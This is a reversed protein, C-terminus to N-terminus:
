EATIFEIKGSANVKYSTNGEAIIITWGQKNINSLSAGEINIVTSPLVITSYRYKINEDDFTQDNNLNNSQNNDNAVSGHFITEVGEAITLTEGQTATFIPAFYLTKGDMSYVRGDISKYTENTNNCTVKTVSNYVYLMASLNNAWEGNLYYSTNTTQVTKIVFSDSLVIEDLYYPRSMSLEYADRVTNPMVYVLDRKSAPYAILITPVGNEKRYLVGDVTMYYPNSSDIEFATVHETACNYFLHSGIIDQNPNEPDYSQGGIQKIGAPLKITTNTAGQCHNFAFNAIFEVSSPIEINELKRCAQFAGMRIEKLGNPLNISKLNKCSGFAAVDVYVIKEGLVVSELATCSDFDGYGIYESEKGYYVSELATCGYFTQYGGYSFGTNYLDLTKLSTCGRFTGTIRIPEEESYIYGVIEKLTTPFIVEKLSINQYFCQVPLREVGESIIIREVNPMMGLALSGEYNESDVKSTNQSHIYDFKILSEPLYLDGKIGSAGFAQSSIYEIGDPMFVTELSTTYLFANFDIKKITDPLYVTKILLNNKFINKGVVNVVYMEGNLENIVTRPIKVDTIENTSDTYSEVTATKTEDDFAYTFVGETDSVPELKTLTIKLNVDKLDYSVDESNDYRVRFASTQTQVDLNIDKEQIYGIQECDFTFKAGEIENTVEMSLSVPSASYNNIDFYIIMDKLEYGHKATELDEFCLGGLMLNGNIDRPTSSYHADQTTYRNGYKNDIFALRYGVEVDLDQCTSNDFTANLNIGSIYTPKPKEFCGVFLFLVPCLMFILFLVKKIKM